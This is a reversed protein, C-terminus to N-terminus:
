KGSSSSGSDSSSSSSNSSRSANCGQKEGQAGSPPSFSKDAGEFM